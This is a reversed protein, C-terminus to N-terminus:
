CRGVITRTFVASGNVYVTVKLGTPIITGCTQACVKITPNVPLRVPSTICFDGYIPITFCIQNSSSNYSAAVCVSLALALLEPVAAHAQALQDESSAAAATFGVTEFDPVHDGSSANKNTTDACMITEGQQSQTM